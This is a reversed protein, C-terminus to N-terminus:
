KREVGVLTLLNSEFLKILTLTFYRSWKRSIDIYKGSEAAKQWRGAQQYWALPLFEMASLPFYLRQNVRVQKILLVQM